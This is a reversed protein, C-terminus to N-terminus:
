TERVVLTRVLKDHWGQHRKDIAIWIYGIGVCAFALLGTVYRGICQWATPRGGTAEDVIRLRCIMKGPTAGLTIWFGIIALPPFIVSFLDAPSSSAGMEVVGVGMAAPGSSVVISTPMPQGTAVRVAVNVAALWLLDLTNAGVRVWFGAYRPASATPPM